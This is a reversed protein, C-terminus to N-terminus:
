DEGEEEEERRRRVVEVADADVEELAEEAEEEEASVREPLSLTAVMDDAPTLITVGAPVVLDAVTIATDLSDLASLDVQIHAPLDGPLCEVEVSNLGTVLVLDGEASIPAEGTFELPVETRIVRDMSVAYFDVHLLNGRMYDRQVSRVLATHAKGAINLDIIQSGGAAALAVALAREEVQLFLPERDPGYLVAPIMGSRRLHKVEKGVVERKSAELQINKSM